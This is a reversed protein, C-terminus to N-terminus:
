DWLNALFNMIKKIYLEKVYSESFNSFDQNNFDSLEKFFYLINEKYTQTTSSGCYPTLENKEMLLFKLMTDTLNNKKVILNINDGFDNYINLLYKCKENEVFNFDCNIKYYQNKGISFTNFGIVIELFSLNNSYEDGFVLMSDNNFRINKYPVINSEYNTIIDLITETLENKVVIVGEQKDYDIIGEESIFFPHIHINKDKNIYSVDFFNNKCVYKLDKIVMKIRTSLIGDEDTFILEKKKTSYCKTM